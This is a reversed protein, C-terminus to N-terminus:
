TKWDLLVYSMVTTSCLYTVKIWFCGNASTEWFPHKRLIWLFVGTNSVRKLLNAPRAVQLGAVKKFLSELVSVRCKSINPSDSCNGLLLMVDDMPDKLALEKSIICNGFWVNFVNLRAKSLILRSKWVTKSGSALLMKGFTWNSSLQVRLIDTQCFSQNALGDSLKFFETLVM